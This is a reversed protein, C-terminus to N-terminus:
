EKFIEKVWTENWDGEGENKHQKQIVEKVGKAAAKILAKVKVLDTVGEILAVGAHVGQYIWDKLLQKQKIDLEGITKFLENAVHDAATTANMRNTGANYWAIAINEAIAYTQAKTFQTRAITEMNGLLSGMTEYGAKEIRADMTKENYDAESAYKRAQQWLVTSTDGWMKAKAAIEETSMNTNEIKTENLKAATKALETDVGATKTAEAEKKAADAELNRKQANMLGLQIGMGTGEIIQSKIAQPGAGGPASGPTGQGPMATGGAATAGGGGGNGYLLAPNLGAAKMHAVQNEYNTYNWMDKNMNHSEKAMGLAYQNNIMAMEKAYNQNIEGMEKNYQHQQGMLKLQNKYNRRDSIAGEIMGVAGSLLSNGWNSIDAM